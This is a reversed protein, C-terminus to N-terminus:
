KKDTLFKHQGIEAMVRMNRAWKPNALRPNFYHNAKRTLNSNASEAWARRAMDLSKKSARSLRKYAYGKCNWCSFQLRALCVDDFSQHRERARIRIVEGIAVMGNFGQNEAELLITAEPISLETAYCNSAMLLCLFSALSLILPKM